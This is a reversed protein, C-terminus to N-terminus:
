PAVTLRAEWSAVPNGRPYEAVYRWTYEGPTWFWYPYTRTLSSYGPVNLTGETPYTIYNITTGPNSDTELRWYIPFQFSERNTLTFTFSAPNYVYTGRTRVQAPLEGVIEVNPKLVPRSVPDPMEQSSGVRLWATLNGDDLLYNRGVGFEDSASWTRWCTGVLERDPVWEKLLSWDTGTWMSIFDIQAKTIPGKNVNYAAISVTLSGTPVDTFITPSMYDDLAIVEFFDMYFGQVGAPPISFTALNKDEDRIQVVLQIRAKSEGGTQSIWRTDKIGFYDLAIHVPPGSDRAFVATVYRDRAMSIEIEPGLPSVQGDIKWHSFVNGPVPTAILTLRTDSPYQQGGPPSVSGSDAPSVNINLTSFQVHRRGGDDVSTRGGLVLIAAVIVVTCILIVGALARNSM